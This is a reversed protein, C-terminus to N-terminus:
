DPIILCDIRCDSVIDPGKSWHPDKEVRGMMYEPGAEGEELTLSLGHQNAFTAVAHEKDRAEIDDFTHNDSQRWLRYIAM